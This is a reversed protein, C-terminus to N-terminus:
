PKATAFGVVTGRLEKKLIRDAEDLARSLSSGRDRASTKIPWRRSGRARNTATETLRVELTGRQWYWGEQL